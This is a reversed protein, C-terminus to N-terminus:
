LVKDLWKNVNYRLPTDQTSLAHGDAFAVNTMGGHRIICRGNNYLYSPPNAKYM